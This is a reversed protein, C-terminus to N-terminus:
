RGQVTLSMNATNTNNAIAQFRVQYDFGSATAFDCSGRFRAGSTSASVRQLNPQCTGVQTYNGTGIPAQFIATRVDVGYTGPTPNNTYSTEVTLRYGPGGNLRASNVETLQGTPLNTFTSWFTAPLTPKPFQWLLNANGGSDCARLYPRAGNSGGADLCYNAVLNRMQAAGAVSALAWIVNNNGGSCGVNGLYPNRNLAGGAGDLCVNGNIAPRIIAHGTASERYINWKLNGNEGNDCARMYPNAGFSGGAADLCLGINSKIHVESAILSIAQTKVTSTSKAAEASVEDIAPITTQGCGVMFSILVLSAAAISKPM